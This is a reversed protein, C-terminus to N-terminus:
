DWHVNSLSDRRVPFRFCAEALANLGPAPPDAKPATKASTAAASERNSLSSSIDNNAMTYTESMGNTRSALFSERRLGVLSDRRVPFRFSPNTATVRLEEKKNTISANMGNILQEGYGLPNGVVATNLSTSRSVSNSGFLASNSPLPLSTRRFLGSQLARRSEATKDSLTQINGVTATPSTTNNASASGNPLQSKIDALFKANWEKLIALDVPVRRSALGIPTATTTTTAIHPLSARRPQQQPFQPQQNLVLREMGLQASALSRRRIAATLNESLFAPARGTAEQEDLSGLQQARMRAWESREEAAQRLREPDAKSSKQLSQESLVVRLHWQRQCQMEQNLTTSQYPELGRLCLDPCHTRLASADGQVLKLLRITAIREKLFNEFDARSYWLEKKRQEVEDKTMDKDYHSCLYIMPTAEAFRVNLAAGDHEHINTESSASSDSDVCRQKQRSPSKLSNSITRDVGLRGFSEGRRVRKRDM